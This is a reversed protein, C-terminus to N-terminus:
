KVETSLRFSAPEASAPIYDAFTALRRIFDPASLGAAGMLTYINTSANVHALLWTARMRQSNPSGHGLDRLAATIGAAGRVTRRPAVLYDQPAATRARAKSLEDHWDALVPVTRDALQVGLLGDNLTVIDRVRVEMMETGSLGCGLGLAAIACASRSRATNPQHEAWRRIAGQEDVPYPKSPSATTAVTRKEPTNRLGAITRLRKREREAVPGAVESHRHHTYADIVSARLATDNMTSVGTILVWEAFTALTALAHRTARKDRGPAYRLRITERVFDAMQSWADADVFQPLYNNILNDNSHM